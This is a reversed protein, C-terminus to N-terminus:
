LIRNPLIESLMCDALISQIFLPYKKIAEKFDSDECLKHAFDDCTELAEKIKETAKDYKDIHIYAVVLNIYVESHKPSNLWQPLFLLYEVIAEDWRKM